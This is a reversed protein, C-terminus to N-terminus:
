RETRNGQKQREKDSYKCIYGGVEEHIVYDIETIIVKEKKM